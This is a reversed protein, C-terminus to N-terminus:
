AREADDAAALPAPEHLRIGSQTSEVLVDGNDLRSGVVALPRDACFVHRSGTVITAEGGDPYRVRDGVCAVPRDHLRVSDCGTTVHGGRATRSGVTAVDHATPLHHPHTM